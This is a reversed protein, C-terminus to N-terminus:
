LAVLGEALCLPTRMSAQLGSRAETEQTSRVGIRSGEVWCRSFRRVLDPETGGRQIVESLDRGLSPTRPHKSWQSPEPVPFLPVWAPCPQQPEKGPSPAQILVSTEGEDKCHLSWAGLSGSHTNERLLLLLHRLAQPYWRFLLFGHGRKPLGPPYSLSM